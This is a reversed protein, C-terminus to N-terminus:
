NNKEKTSKSKYGYEQFVQYLRDPYDSIIGDVGMNLLKRMTEKDNITWVHLKIGKSKCM